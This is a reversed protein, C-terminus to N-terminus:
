AASRPESVASACPVRKRAWDSLGVSGSTVEQIRIATEISPGREGYKLKRICHQTIGGVRLAMTVDDLREARMYDILKM